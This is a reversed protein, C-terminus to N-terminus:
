NFDNLLEISYDPLPIYPLVKTKTLYTVQSKIKTFSRCTEILDKIDSSLSVLVANMKSDDHRGEM